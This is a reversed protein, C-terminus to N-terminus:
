IGKQIINVVDFIICVSKYLEFHFIDFYYSLLVKFTFCIIALYYNENYMDFLVYDSWLLNFTNGCLETGTIMNLTRQFNISQVFM